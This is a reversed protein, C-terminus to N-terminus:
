GEMIQKITAWVRRGKATLSVVFESANEVSPAKIVLDHGKMGERYHQFSLMAVSRSVAPQSLGLRRELEKMKIPERRDAAEAVILFAQATQLPLITDLKRFEDMVSILRHAASVKIM